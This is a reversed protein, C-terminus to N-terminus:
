ETGVYTTEQTNRAVRKTLEMMFEHRASCKTPLKPTSCELYGLSPHLNSHVPVRLRGVSSSYKCTPVATASKDKIKSLLRKDQEVKGVRGLIRIRSVMFLFTHEPVLVIVGHGRPSGVVELKSHDSGVMMARGTAVVFAM